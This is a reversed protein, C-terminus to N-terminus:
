SPEAVFAGRNGELQIGTHCIAGHLRQKRGLSVREQELLARKAQSIAPLAFCTSLPVALHVLRSGGRGSKCPAPVM